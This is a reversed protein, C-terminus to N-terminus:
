PYLRGWNEYDGRTLIWSHPDGEKDCSLKCDHCLISKPKTDTNEGEAESIYMPDARDCCATCVFTTKERRSGARAAWGDKEWSVVDLEIKVKKLEAKGGGVRKRKSPTKAKPAEEQSTHHLCRTAGEVAALRSCPSGATTQGTCLSRTCSHRLSRCPRGSRVHACASCTGDDSAYVAPDLGPLKRAAAVDLVLEEEEEEEEEEEM